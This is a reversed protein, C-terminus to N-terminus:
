MTVVEEALIPNPLMHLSAQVKAARTLVAIELTKYM